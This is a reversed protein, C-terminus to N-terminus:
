DCKKIESPKCGFHKQFIRNFNRISGFGSELAIESIPLSGREILTRAEYVRLSNLIESFGRKGNSNLVRSLHEPSVGVYLATKELTINEKFNESIYVIAKRYVDYEFVPSDTLTSSNLFDSVTCYLLAKKKLDDSFEENLITDILMRHIDTVRAVPPEFVKGTLIQRYESLYEPPCALVFACSDEEYKYGHTEYPMSIAMDGETLFYNKDAISITVCGKLVYIFEMHSHIHSHSSKTMIDAFFFDSIGVEPSVEYKM